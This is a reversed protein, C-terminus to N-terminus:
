INRTARPMTSTDMGYSKAQSKQKGKSLRILTRLAKIGTAKSRKRGGGWLSSRRISSHRIRFIFICTHGIQLVAHLSVALTDTIGAIAISTVTAHDTRRDTRGDTHRDTESMCETRKNSPYAM